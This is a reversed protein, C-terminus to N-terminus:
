CDRALHVVVLILKAVKQIRWLMAMMLLSDDNRPRLHGTKSKIARMTTKRTTVTTLHDLNLLRPHSATDYLRVLVTNSSKTPSRWILLCPECVNVRFALYLLTYMYLLIHDPSSHSPHFSCVPLRVLYALLVTSCAAFFFVSKSSASYSDRAIRQLDPPLSTILRASQRIRKILQM